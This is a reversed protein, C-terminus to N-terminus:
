AFIAVGGFGLLCTGSIRNLWTSNIATKFHSAISALVLWWLMSGAFVGLSLILTSLYGRTEFDAGLSAFIAMFSLITMPNALTLFFTTYFTKALSISNVVHQSHNKTRFLMLGLYCLFLGGSLQLWPKIDLILSLVATLGFGALSGYVMDALAAGLGTALGYRMGFNVVNGICLIGIPGVPMAISAGLLMGKCFLWFMEMGLYKYIFM